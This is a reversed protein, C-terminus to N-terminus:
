GPIASDGPVYLCYGSWRLESELRRIAFNLAKKGSVFAITSAAFVVGHVRLFDLHLCKRM